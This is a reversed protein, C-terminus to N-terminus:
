FHLQVKFKKIVQFPLHSKFDADYDLKEKIILGRRGTKRSIGQLISLPGLFICVVFPVWDELLVLRTLWFDRPARPARPSSRPQSVGPKGYTLREEGKERTIELSRVVTEFVILTLGFWIGPRYGQKFIM